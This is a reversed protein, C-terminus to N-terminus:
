VIEIQCSKMVNLASEHLAPTVGACCASDVSLRKEPFAAKLILANSIVCIDTCLGIMEVSFDEGEAADTILSPLAFAGFTNKEVAHWNKNELAKAIRADLLWGATGKICHRVPLMKGEQTSLYDEGHTDFTVFIEGNFAAIKAAAAPIMNQAEATGLSGDVFDKQIDIVILINKM